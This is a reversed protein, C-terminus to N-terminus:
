RLCGRRFATETVSPAKINNVTSTVLIISAAIRSTLIDLQMDYVLAILIALLNHLHTYQMRKLSEKELVKM